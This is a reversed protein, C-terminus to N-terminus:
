TSPPPMLRTLALRANSLWITRSHALQARRLMKGPWEDSVEELVATNVM